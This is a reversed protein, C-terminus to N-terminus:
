LSFLMFLFVIGPFAIQKEPCYYENKAEEVMRQATEMDGREVAALYDADTTQLSKHLSSIEENEPNSKESSDSIIIKSNDMAVASFGNETLDSEHAIRKIQTIDYFLYGRNTVKIKVVGSFMVGDLMFRTIYNDWGGVADPHRGDDDTHGVFESVALLKDLEQATKMKATKIDDPMRRNAPYSFEEASRKNVYAKGNKGVSLVKGKFKNIIIKKAIDQMESVTKGNFVDMGTDILVYFGNRDTKISYKSEGIEYREDRKEAQVSELTDTIREALDAAEKADKRLAAAATEDHKALYAIYNRVETLFKKIEEVFKKLGTPNKEALESLVEDRSLITGAYQAAIEECTDALEKEGFLEALQAMVDGDFDLEKLTEKLSAKDEATTTNYLAYRQYFINRFNEGEDTILQRIMDNILPTKVGAPLMHFAEHFAAVTLANDEAALSLIIVKGNEVGNAYERLTQGNAYLKPTVIITLGYKKAFADIGILQNEQKKSLTRRVGIRTVGPEAKFNDRGLDLAFRIESNGLYM